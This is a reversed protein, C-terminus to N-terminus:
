IGKSYACLLIQIIEIFNRFIRVAQFMELLKDIVTLNCLIELHRNSSM